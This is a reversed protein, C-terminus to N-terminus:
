AGGGQKKLDSIIAEPDYIIQLDEVSSFPVKGQNILKIFENKSIGQLKISKSETSSKKINTTNVKRVIEKDKDALIGTNNLIQVVESYEELKYYVRSLLLKDSKRAQGIKVLSELLIKAKAYRKYWIYFNSLFWIAQHDNSKRNLKKQCIKEVMSFSYFPPIISRGVIELIM